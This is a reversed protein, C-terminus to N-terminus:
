RDSSYLLNLSATITKLLINFLQKGFTSCNQLYYHLCQTKLQMVSRYMNARVALPAHDVRTIEPIEKPACKLQDYVDNQLKGFIKREDYKPSIKDAPIVNLLKKAKPFYRHVQEIVQDPWETMEGRTPEPCWGSWFSSRGGFFNNMGHQYKIYEGDHTAKTLKWHFTESQGGVTLSYEPPLNQFHEPHFYTGRDIILIKAEPQKKMIRQTFSLGCISSGIVVYDFDGTYRCDDWQKDTMFYLHNMIEEVPIYQPGPNPYGHTSGNAPTAM